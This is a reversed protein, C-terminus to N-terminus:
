DTIPMLAVSSCDDDKYQMLMETTVEAFFNFNALFDLDREYPITLFCEREYCRESTIYLHIYHWDASIIIRGKYDSLIREIEKAKIQRKFNGSDYRDKLEQATMIGNLDSIKLIYEYDEMTFQQNDEMYETIQGMAYCIDWYHNPFRGEKTFSVGMDDAHVCEFGVNPPLMNSIPQLLQYAKTANSFVKGYLKPNSFNDPTYALAFDHKESLRMRFEHGYLFEGSSWTSHGMGKTFKARKFYPRLTTPLCLKLNSKLLANKREIITKGIDSITLALLDPSMLYEGGYYHHNYPEIQIVISCDKDKLCKLDILVFPSTSIGIIFRQGNNEYITFLQENSKSLQELTQVYKSHSSSTSEEEPVRPHQERLKEALWSAIFFKLSDELAKQDKEENVGLPTNDHEFLANGLMSVIDSATPEIM